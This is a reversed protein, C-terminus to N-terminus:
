DQNMADTFRLVDDRWELMLRALDRPEVKRQRALDSLAPSLLAGAQVTAGPECVLAAAHSSAAVTMTMMRLVPNIVRAYTLQHEIVTRLNEPLGWHQAMAAGLRVWTTHFLFQEAPLSPAALPTDDGKPRWLKAYGKPARYLLAVRGLQHLLGGTFAAEQFMLNLEETLHRAYAASAISVRMMHGYVEQAEEGEKFVLAQKVAATFALRCVENFGLLTIARDVQYVDRRLGYYASNVRRLVGVAIAPDNATVDILREMDPAEQHRIQMIEALTRPMPPLELDLAENGSSVGSAGTAQM